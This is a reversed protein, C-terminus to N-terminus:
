SSGPAVLSPSRGGARVDVRRQRDRRDARRAPVGAGSYTASEGGVSHTLLPWWQGIEATFLEFAREQAAAVVVSKVLPPLAATAASM